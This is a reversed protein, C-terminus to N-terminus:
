DNVPMLVDKLNVHSMYMYGDVEKMRLAVFSTM